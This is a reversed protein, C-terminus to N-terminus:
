ILILRLIKEELHKCTRKLTTIKLFWMIGWLCNFMIFAFTQIKNFRKMLLQDLQLLIFM